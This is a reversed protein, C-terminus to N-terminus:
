GGAPGFGLKPQINVGADVVGEGQQIRGGRWLGFQDPDTTHGSIHRNVFYGNVRGGYKIQGTQVPHLYGSTRVLRYRAGQDGGGFGVPRGAGAVADKLGSRSPNRLSVPHIQDHLLNPVM